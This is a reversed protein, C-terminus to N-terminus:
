DEDEGWELSDPNPDDYDFPISTNTQELFAYPLYLGYEKVFTMKVPGLDGDRNKVVHVEYYRPDPPNAFSIGANHFFWPYYVMFIQNALKEAMSTWALDSLRPAPEQNVSARKEVDRSLQLLVIVPVNLVKAIAKLGILARELRVVKNYENDGPEQGILELFDFVVVGLPNRAHVALCKAMIYQLTPSVTDDLFVNLEDLEDIKSYLMKEESADLDWRRVRTANIRSERGANRLALQVNTMEASFVLASKDEGRDRWGKAMETISQLFFASKGQSPRGAVIILEAIAYGIIKKDLDPFGTPENLGLIGKKADRVFARLETNVEKYTQTQNNQGMELLELLRTSVHSVLSRPEQAGRKATELGYSFVSAAEKLVYAQQVRNIHFSADGLTAIRTGDGLISELEEVQNKDLDTAEAVTLLSPTVQKKWLETAVDFARKRLPNEFHSIRVQSMIEALIVGDSMDWDGLIFGLLAKESSDAEMRLDLDVDFEILKALLPDDSSYKSINEVIQAVETEKGVYGECRLECEKKLAEHIADIHFGRRRMTGAMSLLYDNRQGHPVNGNEDFEYGAEGTRIAMELLWGPLEAIESEWPAVIWEYPNDTVSPPCVVYGRSSKFDIGPTIGTRNRIKRNPTRFYYHYGPQEGGTQAVVTEPLKGYEKTLFSMSEMGGHRPDIDLVVVGSADGCAVAWNSDSGYENIWAEIQERDGTADLVGHDTVPIKGRRTLPLLSFGKDLLRQLNKDM